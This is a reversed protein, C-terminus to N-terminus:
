KATETAHRRYVDIIVAIVIIIGKVIKQPGQGVGLLNLGNSIIGIIFIGVLTGFLSGEGGRMSTGGIVVAAIADMEYGDANTVTASDLRSGLLVAGIGCCIGSVTYILIKMKDINIGSLKACTENGGIAYTYRGFRTYRLIYWALVFVCIMIIICYVPIGWIRGAIAGFSDPFDSITKGSTITYALGRGIYMTGLTAIFPPLKLKAILLGNSLGMVTALILGCLITVAVDVHWYNMMIAMFLTTTGLNSGVSLDIGGSIIVFAMGIAVVFNVNIQQIVNLINASQLFVDTMLSLNLSLICFAIFIGVISKASSVNKIETKEGKIKRKQKIINYLVITVAALILDITLVFFYRASGSIAIAIQDSSTLVVEEVPETEEVNQGLYKAAEAKKIYSNYAKIRDNM